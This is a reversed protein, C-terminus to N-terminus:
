RIIVPGPSVFVPAPRVIAPYYPRAFVPYPRVYAPYYPRVVVPGPRYFYGGRVWIAASAKPAAAGVALLGALFGFALFLKRRM